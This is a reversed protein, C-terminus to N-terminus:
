SSFYRKFLLWGRNVMPKIVLRQEPSSGASRGRVLLAAFVSGITKGSLFQISLVKSIFLFTNKTWRPRKEVKFNYGKMRITVCHFTKPHLPFFNLLRPVSLHLGLLFNSLHFWHSLFNLKNMIEIGCQYLCISIFPFSNIFINVLFYTLTHPPDIIIPTPKGFEEYTLCKLKNAWIFWKVM